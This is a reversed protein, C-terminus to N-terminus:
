AWGLQVFFRGGFRECRLFDGESVTAGWAECYKQKKTKILNARVASWVSLFGLFTLLVLLLFSLSREVKTNVLQWGRM